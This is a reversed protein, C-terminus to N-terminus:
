CWIYCGVTGVVTLLVWVWLLRFRSGRHCVWPWLGYVGGVVFGFCCVQGGSVVFGYWRVLWGGSSFIQLVSGERVM